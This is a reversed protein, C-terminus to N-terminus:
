RDFVALESTGAEDELGVVLRERFARALKELTALNPRHQGSELRSVAPVSTEM